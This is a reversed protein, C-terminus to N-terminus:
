VFILSWLLLRINLFNIYYPLYGLLEQYYKNAKLRVVLQCRHKDRLFDTNNCSWRNTFASQESYNVYNSYTVGAYLGQVHGKDIAAVQLIQRALEVQLTLNISYKKM